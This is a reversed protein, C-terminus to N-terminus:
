TTKKRATLLHWAVKLGAHGGNHLSVEFKWHPLIKKPKLASLKFDVSGAGIIPVNKVWCALDLQIDFLNYDAAGPNASATVAGLGEDPGDWDWYGTVDPSPVPIKDVDAVDHTGDGAAPTILNFGGVDVLNCNGTNVPDAVTVTTAPAFAKMNITDGIEGGEYLLVGGALYIWDSFQFQVPTDGVSESSATFANGGGRQGSLDGEGPFYLDVDGRFLNPLVILKGDETRPGNLYITENGPM